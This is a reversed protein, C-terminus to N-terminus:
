QPRTSIYANPGQLTYSDSSSCLPMASTPYCLSAQYGRVGWPTGPAAMERGPAWCVAAQPGSHGAPLEMLRLAVEGHGDLVVGLLGLVVQVTGPAPLEQLVNQPGAQINGGDQKEVGLLGLYTRAPGPRAGSFDPKRAFSRAASALCNVM